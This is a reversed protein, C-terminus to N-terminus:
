QTIPRLCELTTFIYKIGSTAKCVSWVVCVFVCDKFETLSFLM